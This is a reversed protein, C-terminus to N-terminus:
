DSVGFDLYWVGAMKTKALTFTDRGYDELTQRTVPSGIKLAGINELRGKLWKGLITLDGESRFNKSYDGSVKCRFLWRDDTVVTFTADATGSKPYSDLGTIAKPVILEVEYWHRPKVIGNKAKRGKGFFANLNSHPSVEFPKIPIEFKVNTISGVINNFENISVRTVHEQGELLPNEEKFQTVAVDQIPESSTERLGVVFNWIDQVIKVDKILVSSEYLRRGAEVIGGLNSSGIIADSPGNADHYVYLKGHYPFATVVYVKGRRESELYMNLRKAAEYQLKTFKDFYHMGIILNLTRIRTNLEMIKQLELLADSSVFGVAIDLRTAKSLLTYFTESFTPHSTKMPPYNSSLIEM